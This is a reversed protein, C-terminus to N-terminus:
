FIFVGRCEFAPSNNRRLPFHFDFGRCAECSAAQSASCIRNVHSIIHTADVRQRTGRKIFGKEQALRVIKDFILSMKDNEKLRKRFYCLTSPYFSVNQRIPLRLAIKWDIRRVCAEATETDPLNERFQLLTVCALFAPSIANRGKESYCDAFEGDKFVPYITNSFVM